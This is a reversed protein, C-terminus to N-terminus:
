ILELERARLVAERRRSAPLKRYIAALHTKVTNVSLCLEEAIEVTSMNTSLLRLITLERQTLPDALDQPAGQAPVAASPSPDPLPAPWRNAVDPHRALLGAFTAGALLFPLMIDGSAIEIARSLVELARGREGDAEAIQADCLLATVLDLRGVQASPTTLVGRVCDRARRRDGLALHARARAIATVVAFRTGQYADLLTLASRPRGLATDLDAIMVDRRVALVPPITRSAQQALVTRAAAEEGRALLIGAQGLTLAASLGPDASAAGPLAVRQLARAQGDFDGSIYARMATALELAPPTGLGTRGQVERAQRTVQEARGIRSRLSDALAMMALVELELSALGARQAGALAEDLLAGVDDHRGHWMHACAKALLVASSLGALPSPRGGGTDPGLLRRAAADVADADCAKQGLILEALDVAAILSPDAQAPAPRVARLRELEGPAAEPSACIAAILSSAIVTEPSDAAV